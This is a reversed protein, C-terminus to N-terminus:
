YEINYTDTGNSTTESVTVLYGEADYTYEFSIDITGNESITLINNNLFPFSYGEFGGIYVGDFPYFFEIFREIYLSEFQGKFPNSKDDYTIAFSNQLNGNNDFHEATTLNRNTDYSFLTYGNTETSKIILGVANTELILTANQNGEITGTATITNGDYAYSVSTSNLTQQILRGQSDYTFNQVSAPYGSESETWKTLRKANDYVLTSTIGFNPYTGIITSLLEDANYTYQINLNSSQVESRVLKNQPNEPPNEDDSSCSIFLFISLFISALLSNNKM